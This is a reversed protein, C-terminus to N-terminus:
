SFRSTSAAASWVSVTKVGRGPDGSCSATWSSALQCAADRESATWGRWGYHGLVKQGPGPQPESLDVVDLVEPGGCRTIQVARMCFLWPSAGLAGTGAPRPRRDHRPRLDDAHRLGDVLPGIGQLHYSRLQVAEEGDPLGMLDDPRAHDHGVHKNFV